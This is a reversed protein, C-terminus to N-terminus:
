ENDIEKILRNIEDVLSESIRFQEKVIDNYGAINVLLKYMNPAKSILMMNATQEKIGQEGNHQLSLLWNVENRKEKHHTIAYFNADGQKHYFWPGPTHNSM